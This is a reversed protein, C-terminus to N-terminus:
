TPKDPKRSLLAITFGKVQWRQQITYNARLLVEKAPGMGKLPDALTGKRVVWVRDPRGLCGPVERDTCEQAGLRGGTRPPQSMLPDDPRLNAPVYRMVADRSVRQDGEAYSGYVVADGRHVHAKLVAAVDKTGQQHGIPERIERQAPLALLGIALVAAMGRLITLRRLTLSGLVVWGPLVFLLYRPIWMPTIESVVLLGAAPVIAWATAVLAPQRMSMAILALAMVAGALIPSGFVSEPTDVIRQVTVDPIWDIQASTQQRGLYLLPLMPLLGVAAAGMWGFFNRNRKRMKWAVVAHAGLMLMAVVHSLGILIVSASYALYRLFKPRDALRVMLYTSLVAAFMAFAYPRAEQAYRSTMPLVALLTGAALGVRRGGLRIGLGAVLAATGAMAVVSPLRLALDSTGAVETWVRLLLYYPAVTADINRLVQWFEPWGATVMGWTALEDEWLGPTGLGVMGLAAMLLMPFLWSLVTLWRAQLPEPPPPTDVTAPPAPVPATEWAGPQAQKPIIITPDSSTVAM